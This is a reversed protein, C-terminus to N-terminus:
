NKNTQNNNLLQEIVKKDYNPNSEIKLTTSNGFCNVKISNNIIVIYCFGASIVEGLNEAIQKHTIASRSFLIPISKDKLIIYKCIM